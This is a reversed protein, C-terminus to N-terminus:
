GKPRSRQLPTRVSPFSSACFSFSKKLAISLQFFGICKVALGGKQESVHAQSLIDSYLAPKRANIYRTGGAAQLKEPTLTAITIDNDLKRCESIIDGFPDLIMSCGNKLQDDDMGISNSFVAYVANDCARAPLWKMLWSRGKLGDFEQRLTTQDTERSVWLSPDVFGAGCKWTKSM